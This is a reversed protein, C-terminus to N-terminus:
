CTAQYGSKTYVISNINAIHYVATSSSATVSLYFRSNAFDNTSTLTVTTTGASKITITNGSVISSAIVTGTNWAVVTYEYAKFCTTGTPDSSFLVLKIIMGRNVPLSFYYTTNRYKLTTAGTSSTRATLALGDACYSDGVVDSTSYLLGGIFHRAGECPTGVYWGRADVFTGSVSCDDGNIINYDGTSTNNSGLVISNTGSVTNGLGLALSHSGSVTNATPYGTVFSFGGSGSTFVSESSTRNIKVYDDDIQFHSFIILSPDASVPHAFDHSIDSADCLLVNLTTHDAGIMLSNNTQNTTYKITAAGTYITNGFNFNQGALIYTDGDLYSTGDVELKGSILADTNGTLAHSTATAGLHLGVAPAGNNIGLRNNTTDYFFTSEGTLLGTSSGYGVWGQTLSAKTAAALIAAAVSGESTILDEILNWETYSAFLAIGASDWNCLANTRYADTFLISGTGSEIVANSQNHSLGLYQLRTGSTSADASQIYLTPNTQLARDWAAAVDARECVILSKSESGLALVLTNPTSYTSHMIVSDAATTSGIYLGVADAYVSSANYTMIGNVTSTSNFTAVGDFYSSGDVELGGTLYMSDNTTGIRNWTGSGVIVQRNTNYKFYTANGTIRSPTAGNGYGIATADLNATNAAALIAGAISGESGILTEISTWEATSAFLGIGVGAWLSGSKYADTFWISGVGSSIIANSQNHALSLYQAVTTLSSHIYLTPNAQIAYGWNTGIDDKECIILSRSDSGLGLVLTNATNATSYILSSNTNDTTTGFNISVGDRINPSALFSMIGYITSTSNFTVVGDFYAAGDVELAGTLYLSYNTTGISGPTGNGIKQQYNTYDWKFNIIDGTLSNSANGYGITTSQLSASASSTSAALIAAAISGETGGLLSEIAAWESAESFLRIGDSTWTGPKFADTFLISGTGSAIVAHTQNHSLALYKAATSASQIWITPNTQQAHGWNVGIDDRECVVLGRSETGLGLVLTNATTNYTTEHLLVSDVSTSNGINLKINDRLLPDAYFSMAGNVTSTTGLTVVGDFYSSGDIELTGKVYLSDNTSGLSGPSGSGIYVQRNANYIFNVNDGTLFGVGSGYGIATAALAAGSSAGAAALIAAAISGETGSMLAKLGTWETDTTFLRIGASTWGIPKTADAFMFSGAGSVLMSDTQNHSLALHKLPSTEDASQIYLTPNTQLTKSWNTDVDSQACVIMGFSDASVGLVLTDPNNNTARYAISADSGTGFYLPVNDAFIASSGTQFTATGYFSSTSDVYLVGDIEVTGTVYLNDSGDSGRGPTGSGITIGRTPVAQNIGLRNNTSDWFLASEGTVGTGNGFAVYGQTLSLGSSAAALIAAAISGETGGMLAKLGSWETDVSFLRIGSSTWTGPKWADTFLISGVGSVIAADTQNHSLALHQLRTGATSADASQIYITPNTQLAKNWAVAKDATECIILGNSEAGLGIVLTNPTSGTSWIMNADASNGFSAPITDRFLGSNYFIAQDVFYSIGTVELKGGLYLSSNSTGTYSPSGSGLHLQKNTYDWHFNTADGTLKSTASGYGVAYQALNATGGAAIIAAAISGESGMLAEILDWEQYSAFLPIGASAWGSAAKNGDSFYLNGTTSQVRLTNTLVYGGMNLNATMANTGDIYLYYPHDTKVSALDTLSHHLTTGGTATSTILLTENAGPNQVTITVNTGQVIKDSLFGPTSDDSSVKARRDDTGSGAVFSFIQRTDDGYLLVSGNFWNINYSADVYGYVRFNPDIEAASVAEFVTDQAGVAGPTVQAGIMYYPHLVVPVDSTISIRTGLTRSILVLDSSLVLTYVGTNLEISANPLQHFVEKTGEIIGFVSADQETVMDNFTGQWEQWDANWDPVPWQNKPTDSM